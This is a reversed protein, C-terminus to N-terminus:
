RGLARILQIAEPYDQRIQLAQIAAQQAQEKEGLRAHITARAYPITEDNPDAAEGHRLAAIAEQPQNASLALGLNYWARAYGPALKVTERLAAITGLTDGTENLALALKFQYEPNAPDLEIAKRLSETAGKMDGTTSLLIALDHHFPPSNPDWEIAKRMQRIASDSDGRRLAFQALQMRGTPQDANHDLMHILERGAKSNLDLSECLAWAAAIRVARVPDDLLPTISKALSGGPHDRVAEGLARVAAERVLPSDDTLHNALAASVAPERVWRRLLHIATGRWAAIPEAALLPILGDRAAPDGRRARAVLLSRTRTPRDPKEGYFDKMASVAWAADKDTHCRNCANPVGFEQTLKPDPIIFGHDHRPDRQMYTTVPMHCSVCQNGTSDIGHHSHDAPNIIPSTPFDERGGAHCNMCLQNGPSILKNDHPDHCDMCRVGAHHMKSAVFATYEYNEGHVQGDPYFTDTEDTITLSHHDYFNDGPVPDGTLEARRAHCAACTETITCRAKAAISAAASASARLM